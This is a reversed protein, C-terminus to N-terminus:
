WSYGLVWDMRGRVVVFGFGSIDVVALILIDFRPDDSVAM